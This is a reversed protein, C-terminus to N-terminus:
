VTEGAFRRPRKIEVMEVGAAGGQAGAKEGGAQSGEGSKMMEFLERAKREREIQGAAAELKL